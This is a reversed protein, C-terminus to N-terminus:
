RVLHHPARILFIFHFLKDDYRIYEVVCYSCMSPDLLDTRETFSELLNNNM